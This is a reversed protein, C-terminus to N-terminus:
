KRRKTAPDYYKRLEYSLTRTMEQKSLLLIFDNEMPEIGMGRLMSLSGDLARSDGQINDIFTNVYNYNSNFTRQFKLPKEGKITISGIFRANSRRQVQVIDVIASVTQYVPKGNNDSGVVINRSIRRRSMREDRPWLMFNDIRINVTVEPNEDNEVLVFNVSQFNELENLLQLRYYDINIFATGTNNEGSINLAMAVEKKPAKPTNRTKCGSSLALLILLICGFNKM